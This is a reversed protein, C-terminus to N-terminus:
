GARNLDGDQAGADRLVQGSADHVSADPADAYHKGSIQIRSLRDAHLELQGVGRLQDLGAGADAVLVAEAGAELERCNARFLQFQNAAPGILAVPDHNRWRIRDLDHRCCLRMEQLGSLGFWGQRPM